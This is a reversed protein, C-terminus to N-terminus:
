TKLPSSHCWGYNKKCYSLSNERASQRIKITLLLVSPHFCTVSVYDAFTEDFKEASCQRHSLQVVFRTIKLSSIM